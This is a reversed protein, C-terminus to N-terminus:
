GEVDSCFMFLMKEVTIQLEERTFANRLTMKYGFEDCLKGLEDRLSDVARCEFLVHNATEKCDCGYRCSMSINSNIKSKWSRLPGRNLATRHYWVHTLRSHMRKPLRRHEWHPHIVHTMSVHNSKRWFETLERYMCQRLCRKFGHVSVKQIDTNMTDYTMFRTIAAEAPAFIRSRKFAGDPDAKMDAVM